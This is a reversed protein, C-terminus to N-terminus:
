PVTLKWNACSRVVDLSLYQLKSQIGVVFDLSDLASSCFWFKILHIWDFQAGRVTSGM